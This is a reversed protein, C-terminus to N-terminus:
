ELVEQHGGLSNLLLLLLHLGRHHRQAVLNPGVDLLPQGTEGAGPDPPRLVLVVLCASRERM